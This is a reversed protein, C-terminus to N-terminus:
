PELETISFESFGPAATFASKIGSTIMIRNEETIMIYDFDSLKDDNLSKEWFERAKEPGMVFLATSLADCLFSDEAVITVSLIGNDVPYGTSPDIIHCYHKGNEEFYREYGGSTVVSMNSVRLFGAYPSLDAVDSSGLGGSKNNNESKTSNGESKNSGTESRSSDSESAGTNEEGFSQHVTPAAIAINWDSGDPKSGITKINGGLSILASSIDHGKLFEAISEATYGKAVAGLDLMMDNEIIISYTDSASAESFKVKRYDTHKLLEKIEDTDPVRYVGTTFGWTRTIPYLTIDLAGDTKECIELSKGILSATESSVATKHGQSHNVAHIDGTENNVSFKRDLGLVLDQVSSLTNEINESLRSSGKSFSNSEHETDPEYVTITMATDMAFFTIRYPNDTNNVPSSSCGCFSLVCAIYILILFLSRNRRSNMQCTLYGKRNNKPQLAKLMGEQIFPPVFFLKKIFINYRNHGTNYIVRLGPLYVSLINRYFLPFIM